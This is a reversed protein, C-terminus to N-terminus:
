ENILRTTARLAAQQRWPFLQSAHTGAARAVKSVVACDRYGSRCNTGRLPRGGVIIRCRTILDVQAKTM